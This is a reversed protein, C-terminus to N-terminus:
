RLKELRQLASEARQRVNEDADKDKALKRLAPVADKDNLQVLVDILAIQVLPSDQVPISDVLARRVEPNKAFKAIADVASLRVNVNTDHNVTHLLEQEVQPDPQAVQYSYTVGQLRASPSQEQLLSLTVLQRLSEVQKELQAMEPNGTARTRGGALYRGGLVGVLLLVAAFAAQWAPRAPLLGEWWRKQPVSHASRRQAEQYGEQYASLTELFRTRMAPSPEAESMTEFGRWVVGLEAVEARCASCTDLHDIVKERATADLRGALCEPIQERIRDCIM